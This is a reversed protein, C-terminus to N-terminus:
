RTAESPCEFCELHESVFLDLSLQLARVEQDTLGGPVAAANQYNTKRTLYIRRAEVCDEGPEDEESGFCASSLLLTFLILLKGM